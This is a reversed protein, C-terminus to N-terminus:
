HVCREGLIELMADRDAYAAEYRRFLDKQEDCHPQIWTTEHTTPHWLHTATGHLREHKAWLTDLALGLCIDEWGWGLHREDGGGVLQYAARPIVVLGSWSNAVFEDDRTVALKSDAPLALLRLTAKEALKLYQRPMVWTKSGITCRLAAARVWQPDFATDADALMVVDGSSQDFARNLAQARNFLGDVLDPAGVCIEAEPLLAEYRRRVWDWVTARYGGDSVYPVLVSLNVPLYGAHM